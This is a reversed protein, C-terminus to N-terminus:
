IEDAISRVADMVDRIEEPTIHDIHFGGTATVTVGYKKAATEALLRCIEEDRHGTVNLVSTTCSASDDGTLSKRSVSLVACGIHPRGGEVLIAIDEGLKQLHVTLCEGTRGIDRKIIREL